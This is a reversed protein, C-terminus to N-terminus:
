ISSNGLMTDGFVPSDRTENKEIEDFYNMWQDRDVSQFSDVRVAFHDMKERFLKALILTVASQDSRMCFGIHGAVSRWCEQVRSQKVPVICFPNSACALWAGIVAHRILPERHYLGFGTECQQFSLHACPSDGFAEFMQPLMYHPNPKGGPNCRQQVGRIKTRDVASLFETGNTITISADTWM